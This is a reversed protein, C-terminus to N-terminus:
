APAPRYGVPAAPTPVPSALPTFGGVAAVPGSGGRVALPSEPHDAPCPGARYRLSLEPTKPGWIDLVSSMRLGAAHQPHGPFAGPFMQGTATLGKPRGNV